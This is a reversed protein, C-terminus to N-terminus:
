KGISENHNCNAVTSINTGATATTTNGCLTIGTGGYTWNNTPKKWEASCKECYVLDCHSCFKLKHECHCHHNHNM